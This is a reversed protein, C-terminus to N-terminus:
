WSRIVCLQACPSTMSCSRPCKSLRSQFLCFSTSSACSTRFSNWWRRCLITSFLCWLSQTSSRSWPAGCIGSRRDPCPLSGTRGPAPPVCMMSTWPLTCQAQRRPLLIRGSSRRPLADRSGGARGQGDETGRLASHHTYIALAAAISQQEHRWWSRLRRQKRRQAAGTRPQWSPNMM